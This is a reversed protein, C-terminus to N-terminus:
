QSEIGKEGVRGKQSEQTHQTSPLSPLLIPVLFTGRGMGPDGQLQYARGVQLHRGDEGMEMQEAHAHPHKRHFGTVGAKM